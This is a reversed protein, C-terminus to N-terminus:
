SGLLGKDPLLLGLDECTKVMKLVIHKSSFICLSLHTMSANLNIGSPPPPRGNQPVRYTRLEVRGPSDVRTKKRVATIKSTADSEHVHQYSAFARQDMAAPPNANPVWRKVPFVVLVYKHGPIKAQYKKWRTGDQESPQM